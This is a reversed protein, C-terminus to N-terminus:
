RRLSMSHFLRSHMTRFSGAGASATRWTQCRRFTPSPEDLSMVARKYQGSQQVVFATPQGDSDGSGHLRRSFRTYAVSDVHWHALGIVQM